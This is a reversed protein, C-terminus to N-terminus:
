LLGDVSEVGEKAFDLKRAFDAEESVAAEIQKIHEACQQDVKEYMTIGISIMALVALIVLPLIMAAEVFTTGKKSKWNM